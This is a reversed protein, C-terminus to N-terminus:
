LLHYLYIQRCLRCVMILRSKRIHWYTCQHYCIRWSNKDGPVFTGHFMRGQSRFNGPSLHELKRGQLRFNKPVFTGYNEIEGLEGFWQVINCLWVVQCLSTILHSIYSHHLLRHQLQLALASGTEAAPLHIKIRWTQLHWESHSVCCDFTVMILKHIPYRFEPNQKCTSTCQQRKWMCVPTSYTRQCLQQTWREILFCSLVLTLVKELFLYFTLGWCSSAIYDTNVKTNLALM